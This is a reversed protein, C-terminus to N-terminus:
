FAAMFAAVPGQMDASGRGYVKDGEVTMEFPPRSWLKEKEISSVPVVDLHGLFLVNKGEKTGRKHLIVPYLENINNKQYFVPDVEIVEFGHQTGWSKMFKACRDSPFIDEGPSISTDFPIFQELIDLILEKTM